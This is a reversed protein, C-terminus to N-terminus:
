LGETERENGGWLVGCEAEGHTEGETVRRKSPLLRALHSPKSSDKRLRVEKKSERKKKQLLLSRASWRGREPEGPSGEGGLAKM